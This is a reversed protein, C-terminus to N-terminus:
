YSYLPHASVIAPKHSLIFGLDLQDGFLFTQSQNILNKFKRGALFFHSAFSINSFDNLNNSNNSKSKKLNNSLTVLQNILNLRSNNHSPNSNMNTLQAGPIMNIADDNIPIASLNLNNLNIQNQPNTYIIEDTPDHHIQNTDTDYGSLRNNNNNIGNSNGNQTLYRRGTSLVSGM